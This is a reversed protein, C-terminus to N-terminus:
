FIWVLFRILLPFSIFYVSAFADIRSRLKIRPNKFRGKLTSVYFIINFVLGFYLYLAMLILFGWNELRLYFIRGIEVLLRLSPPASINFILSIFLLGCLFPRWSKFNGNLLLNRSNNQTYLFNSFYFLLPSIFGHILSIIIIFIARYSKRVFILNVIIAIHCISSYAILRKSDVQKLAIVACIRRGLLALVSIFKILNTSIRIIVRFRLIGLVRLKLIISALIMSGSVPAEVHAKPLWMHCMIIPLKVLFAALLCLRFIREFWRRFRIFYYFNELLFFRKLGMNNILFIITFLLPLSFILTYLLISLSAFRREPQYGWGLILLFIPILSIEYFTYFIVLSNVYYLITVLVCLIKILFFRNFNKESNFFYQWFFFYYLILTLLNLFIGLSDVTFRSIFFESKIDRLIIIQVIGGLVLFWM